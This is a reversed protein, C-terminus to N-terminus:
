LSSRCAMHELCVYHMSCNAVPLWCHQLSTVPVLHPIMPMMSLHSSTIDGDDYGGDVNCNRLSGQLSIDSPPGPSMSSQSLIDEIDDADDTSYDDDNHNITSCSDYQPNLSRQLSIVSCSFPMIVPEVVHSPTDTYIAAFLYLKCRQRLGIADVFTKSISSTFPPLLPSAYSETTTV